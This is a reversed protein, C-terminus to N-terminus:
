ETMKCCSNIIKEGLISWNGIGAAVTCVILSGCELPRELERIYRVFPVASQEVPVPRAPLTTGM